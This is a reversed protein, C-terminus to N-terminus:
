RVRAWGRHPSSRPTCKRGRWPPAQARTEFSAVWSCLGRGSLPRSRQRTRPTRFPSSPLVALTRLRDLKHLHLQLRTDVRRSARRARARRSRRWWRSPKIRPRTGHKTVTIKSTVAQISPPRQAPDNEHQTRNKQGRPRAPEAASPARSGSHRTRRPRRRPQRSERRERTPGRIDNEDNKRETGDGIRFRVCRV